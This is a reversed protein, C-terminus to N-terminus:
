WRVSLCTADDALQPGGAHRIVADFLAALPAAAQALGAAAAVAAVGATGFQRPSACADDTAAPQEIIGDSVVLLHGSAPLPITVAAYAFDEAVGVPLNDGESLQQPKADGGADLLWAYGHGADAYTLTIASPDIVGVWLTLFRDDPRRPLVFRNLESVALDPRGHERLAAHLFGHATTMLVSAAVGKGAVDGLAVALRGDRLPIVDFFDGGVHRGPRCEGVCHFRGVDIPARPLVWRQAEAAAVLEAEVRAARREVDIRKLNALALSAVRGLAACFATVSAWQQASVGRGGGRADLYLFGAAATGLMLPVCVAADIKLEVISHSVDGGGAPTFVAVSGGAAATLLSRSFRWTVDTQPPRSAVIEVRGDADAPRLVAANPLNSGRCAADLLGDALQREDAAAHMAAASELLLALLQEALAVGPRQANVTRVMTQMRLVDDESQVGRGRAIDASFNFTWPAIRVLDGAALPVEADATIRCGNLYTGWRSKLDTIRWGGADDLRLRAHLRSVSESPLRVGCQEHRGLLVTGDAARLEVAPLPPGALPVLWASAPAAAVATM